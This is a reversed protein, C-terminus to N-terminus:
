LAASKSRDTLDSWIAERSAAVENALQPDRALLSQLKAFLRDFPQRLSKLDAAGSAYARRIRERLGDLENEIELKKAVTIAESERVREELAPLDLQQAGPAVSPVAAKPTDPAAFM